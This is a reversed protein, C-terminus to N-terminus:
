IGDAGGSLGPLERELAAALYERLAIADPHEWRGPATEILRDGKYMPTGDEDLPLAVTYSMMEVNLEVNSFDTM